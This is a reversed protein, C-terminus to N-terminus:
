FLSFKVEVLVSSRFMNFVLSIQFFDLFDQLFPMISVKVSKGHEDEAEEEPQMEIVALGFFMLIQM